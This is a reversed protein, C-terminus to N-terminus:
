QISFTRKNKNVLHGYLRDRMEPTFPENASIAEKVEQTLDSDGDYFHFGMSKGIQQGIFTKGAGSKGFVIILQPESEPVSMKFIGSKYLNITEYWKAM